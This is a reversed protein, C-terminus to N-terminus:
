SRRAPPAGGRRRRRRGPRSSNPTLGTSHRLRDARGTARDPEPARPQRAPRLVLDHRPCIRDPRALRIRLHRASAARPRALATAYERELVVLRATQEDIQRELSALRAREAALAAELEDLRAQEAAVAAEAARVRAVLAREAREHARGRHRAAREAQAKLDGIRTDIRAKDSGPDGAAAGALLLTTALAAGLATRRAM